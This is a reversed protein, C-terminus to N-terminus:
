SALSLQRSALKVELSKLIKRLGEQGHGSETVIAMDVRGHCKVITSRVPQLILTLLTKLLLVKGSSLCNHGMLVMFKVFGVRSSSWLSFWLQLIVSWTGLSVVCGLLLAWLNIWFLFMFCQGYRCRLLWLHFWYAIHGIPAQVQFQGIATNGFEIYQCELRIILICNLSSLKVAFLFM